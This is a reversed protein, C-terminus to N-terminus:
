AHKLNDISISVIVSLYINLNEVIRNTPLGKFLSLDSTLKNAYRIMYDLYFNETRYYKINFILEEIYDRNGDNKVKKLRSIYEPDESDIKMSSLKNLLPVVKYRAYKKSTNILNDVNYIANIGAIHKAIVIKYIENTEISYIVNKELQEQLQVGDYLGLKSNIYQNVESIIDNNHIDYIQVLSYNFLYRLQGYPYDNPDYDKKKKFLNFM